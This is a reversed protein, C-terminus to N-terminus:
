RPGTTITRVCLVKGLGAPDSVGLLRAANMLGAQVEPTPSVVSAEGEELSDFSINGLHLVAAVIRLLGESEELPFGMLDFSEMMERYNDEDNFNKAEM